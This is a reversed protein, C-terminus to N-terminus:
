DNIVEIKGINGRIYLEDCSVQNIFLNNGCIDLKNKGIRMVIQTPTFLLLGKHGEILLGKMDCITIKLGVTDDIPMGLKLLMEDYFNSM